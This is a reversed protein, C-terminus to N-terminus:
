ITRIRSFGRSLSNEFSRKHISFRAIQEPALGLTHAILAPLAGEAHDLPLKLESIRIM